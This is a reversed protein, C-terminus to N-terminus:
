FKGVPITTQSQSGYPCRNYFECYAHSCLWTGRGLPAFLGTDCATEMQNVTALLAQETLNTTGDPNMDIVHVDEIRGPTKRGIDVVRWGKGSVLAGDAHPQYLWAYLSLQLDTTATDYTYKGSRKKLTTKNDTIMVQEGESYPPLAEITDIYGEIIVDDKINRTVHKQSAIVTVENMTAAYERVAEDIRGLLNDDDAIDTEDFEEGPDDMYEVARHMANEPDADKLLMREENVFNAAKDFASGVKVRGPMIGKIGEVYRYEYAKPCMNFKNMQTHSIVANGDDDKKPLNSM